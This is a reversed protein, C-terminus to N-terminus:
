MPVRVDANYRHISKITKCIQELLASKKNLEHMYGILMDVRAVMLSSDNKVESCFKEAERSIFKAYRDIDNALVNIQEIYPAVDICAIRENAKTKAPFTIINAM